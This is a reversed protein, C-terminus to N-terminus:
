RPMEKIYLDHKSYPIEIGARDLADYVASNLADVLDDKHMPEDVWALLGLELGSAGFELFHVKPPPDDSVNPTARAAAMLVEKARAMDTGYAVSVKIRVRQKPTPGGSENVIRTNAIVANPVVIEVHDMTLIRTSRMGIETVQGRQGDALVIFDGLKYPADALIFFGAFLNALTDKAAFGVAIGIVGASAMWGTVDIHWSLLGLYTAAGVVVVKITMKFIPLTRQQVLKFRRSREAKLLLMDSMKVGAISWVVIALTRLSSDLVFSATAGLELRRSATFLGGLMVTVMTPPRLIEIALDDLDSKTKTALPLIVKRALLDMLFVVLVTAGLILSAQVGPAEMYGKVSNLWGAM